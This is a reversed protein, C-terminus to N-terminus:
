EMHSRINGSILDHLTYVSMLFICLPFTSNVNLDCFLVAVTNQNTIVYLFV